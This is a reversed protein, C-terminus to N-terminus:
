LGHEFFFFFNVLGSDGDVRDLMPEPNCKLGSQFKTTIRESKDNIRQVFLTFSIPVAFYSSLQSPSTRRPSPRVSAGRGGDFDIGSRQETGCVMDRCMREDRM